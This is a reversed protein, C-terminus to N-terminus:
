MFDLLGLLWNLLGTNIFTVFPEILIPRLIYLFFFYFYFLYSLLIILAKWLQIRRKSRRQWCLSLSAWLSDSDFHITDLKKIQSFIKLRERYGADRQKNLSSCCCRYSMRMHLLHVSVCELVCSWRNLSLVSDAAPEAGESKWYASRNLSQKRKTDSSLEWTKCTLRRFNM